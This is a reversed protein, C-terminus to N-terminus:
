QKLADCRPRDSAMRHQVFHQLMCAGFHDAFLLSPLNSVLKGIM